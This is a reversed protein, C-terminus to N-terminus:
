SGVASCPAPEILRTSLDHARWVSRRSHCGGRPPLNDLQQFFRDTILRAPAPDFSFLRIIQSSLRNFTLSVSFLFSHSSSADGRSIAVRLWAGHMADPAWIRRVVCSKQYAPGFLCRPEQMQRQSTPRRNLVTLPTLGLSLTPSERRKREKGEEVCDRKKKKPSSPGSM